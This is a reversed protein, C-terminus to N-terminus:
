HPILSNTPRRQTSFLQFKIESQSSILFLSILFLNLDILVKNGDTNLEITPGSLCTRHIDSGSGKRLRVIVYELFIGSRLVQDRFISSLSCIQMAQRWRIFCCSNSSNRKSLSKPSPVQHFRNLYNYPVTKDETDTYESSPRILRFIYRTKSVTIRKTSRWGTFGRNKYNNKKINVLQGPWKNHSM